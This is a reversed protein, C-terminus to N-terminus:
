GFAPKRNLSVIWKLLILGAGAAIMIVSPETAFYSAIESLPLSDPLEPPTCIYVVPYEGWILLSPLVETAVHVMWILGIIILWVPLQYGKGTFFNRIIGISKGEAPRRLKRTRLGVLGIVFIWTKWSIALYLMLIHMESIKPLGGMALMFLLELGGFLGGFLTLVVATLNDTGYIFRLIEAKSGHFRVGILLLAIALTFVIAYPM